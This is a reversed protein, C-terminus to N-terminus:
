PVQRGTSTIGRATTCAIAMLLGQEIAAGTLRSPSARWYARGTVEVADEPAGVGAPM